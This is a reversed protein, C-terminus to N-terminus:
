KLSREHSIHVRVIRYHTFIITLLMPILAENMDQPIFPWILLFSVNLLIMGGILAYKIQKSRILLIFIYAPNAWIINWNDKTILHETGFWMFIIFAGAIFLLANMMPYFSTLFKPFYSILFLFLIATILSSVLPTLLPKKDQYEATFISHESHVLDSMEQATNQFAKINEYLPNPLFMQEEFSLVKDAETGLLLDTGFKTWPSNKLSTALFDRYSKQLKKGSRFSSIGPTCILQQLRTACNDHLSKYRYYKNEPKLNEKLDAYVQRSQKDTLNLKQEVISRDALQYESVFKDFSRKGVKYELSGKLFKFFFGPTNFDFIGYDYVLDEGNYNNKIRLASHGFASYLQKGSSCTLLSIEFNEGTQSQLTASLFFCLLM